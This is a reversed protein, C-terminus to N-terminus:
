IKKGIAKELSKQEERSLQYQSAGGEIPKAYTRTTENAHISTLVIGNNKSDLFTISFSQDGGMEQFPNFRVFGIRSISIEAMEATARSVKLLSQLDKRAQQGEQMLNSLIKQMDEGENMSAGHAGFRIFRTSRVLLVFLVIEGVALIGLLITAFSLAM